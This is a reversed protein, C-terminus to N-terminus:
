EAKAAEAALIVVGGADEIKKKAKESVERAILKIPITIKGSGLVKDIGLDIANIVVRGEEIVAVGSQALKKALGELDKINVEVIERKQYRSKFGHKGYWDPFYKVVWLWKHKHFGVAGFGGRSGSKRHQGVRGWGMTRTRGRLKRSKKRKRVVM